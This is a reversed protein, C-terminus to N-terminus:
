REVIAEIRQTATPQQRDLAQGLSLLHFVQSRTTMLHAVRRFVDLVEEETSGLTDDLLVDGIGRGKDERDGYPRGAILRTALADTMGPLALLVARDATNINILGVRVPRPDLALHDVHCIGSMSECRVQLRLRNAPTEDGGVDLQGVVVRGQADTSLAPSWPVYSGDARQWRVAVQEASRGYLSFRYQGNPVETWEWTGIVSAQDPDSHVYGETSEYWAEQGEILRAEAELQLGDVTLRDVVKALERSAFPRWATGSALGALEGIGELPRNRVFVETAPDHVVPPVDQADRLGDNDNPEGPTYLRLSPYWLEDLGDQDVDRVVSPDGKELSQFPATTQLPLVYEVEDVVWEGSRLALQAGRGPPLVGKLWDDDASPAGGPFELQVAHVEPDIGWFSRADIGNGSLGAQADSLDVVAVLLGHPQIVTQAPVTASRGLTAGGEVTWGGVDVERDTLNILELYEADPEVSLTVGGLYYTGGQASKGISLVFKGDSGVKLISPHREGHQLLQCVSGLCVNGVTHGAQTGRVSLYYRGPRLLPDSWTWSAQGVGSNTCLSGGCVWDSAQPNNFSAASVELSMRPEVMLENIRIAEIGRISVGSVTEVPVLELGSFACASPVPERHTVTVSLQGTLDLEGLLQGSDVSRHLVGQLVVDGVKADSLGLALIRFTGSPVTVNWSLPEGDPEETRYHGSPSDEWQWAGLSGVNALRREHSSKVVRSMAVDADVYDALNVAVQWPDEIGAELLVGVLEEATATNVNVRAQGSTTMNPDWSYVTARAALRRLEEDNVDAIVALEELTELRRDDGRLAAPQYEDPEDVAGDRDDDVLAVGPRQDGGYRYAEIAQAVAAADAIDAQTLLTTLNVAGLAFPSPDALATNLNTKGSEDTVRLAYRGAPEAVDEGIPWWRAERVGNGDVDADQGEPLRSWPELLTDIRSALLDEDLLAWAHQIGAEAIYRAQATSVFHGSALTELRMSSFFAVAIIGVVTVISVVILLAIGREAQRSM